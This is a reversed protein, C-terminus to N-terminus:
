TTMSREYYRRKVALKKLANTARKQKTTWAAIQCLLRDYRERKVDRPPKVKRQKVGVVIGALYPYNAVTATARTNLGSMQEHKYGRCHALEHEFLWGTRIPDLTSAEGRDPRPLRLVMTGSQLYAYGSMDYRSYKVTARILHRLPGEYKINENLVKLFVTRLQRTDWDTKNVIVLKRSM